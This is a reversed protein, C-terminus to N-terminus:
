TNLQGILKVLFAKISEKGTLNKKIHTGLNINKEAILYKGSSMNKKLKMISAFPSTMM